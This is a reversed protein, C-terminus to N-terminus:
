REVVLLSLEAGDGAEVDVVHRFGAAQALAVRDADGTPPAYVIRRCRPDGALAERAAFRLADVLSQGDLGPEARVELDRGGIPYTGALRGGLCPTLWVPEVGNV